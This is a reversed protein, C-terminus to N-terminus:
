IGLIKYDHGIITLM